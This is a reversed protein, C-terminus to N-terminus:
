QFTMILTFRKLSMQLDRESLEKIYLATLGRIARMARFLQASYSATRTLGESCISAPDDQDDPAQITIGALPDMMFKRIDDDGVPSVASLRDLM